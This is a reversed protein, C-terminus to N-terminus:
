GINKNQLADAQRHLDGGVGQQGPQKGTQRILQGAVVHRRARRRANQREDDADDVRGAHGSRGGQLVGHTGTREDFFCNMSTM